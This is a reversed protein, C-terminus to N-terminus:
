SLNMDPMGDFAVVAGDECFVECDPRAPEGDTAPEDEADVEM